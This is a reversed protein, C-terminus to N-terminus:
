VPCAADPLAKATGCTGCPLNGIITLCGGCRGGGSIYGRGGSCINPLSTPSTTCSCGWICSSGICTSVGGYCTVAETVNSAMFVSIAVLLALGVGVTIRKRKM